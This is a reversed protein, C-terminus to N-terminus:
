NFNARTGGFGLTPSRQNTKNGHRGSLILLPVFAKTKSCSLTLSGYKGDGPTLPASLLKYYAFPSCVHQSIRSRWARPTYFRDLRCGVSHPGNFWTFQKGHPNSVRYFDELALSETFAHLQSVATVLVTM